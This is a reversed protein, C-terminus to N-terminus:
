PRKRIMLALLAGIVIIVIFLGVSVPIFYM